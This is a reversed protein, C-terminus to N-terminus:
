LMRTSDTYPTVRGRVVRAERHSQGHLHRAAAVAAAAALSIPGGDDRVELCAKM